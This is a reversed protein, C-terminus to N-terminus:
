RPGSAPVLAHVRLSAARWAARLFGAATYHARLDALAARAVGWDRLRCARALLGIGIEWRYAQPYDSRGAFYRRADTDFELASQLFRMKSVAGSRLASNPSERYVSTVADVYGVRWRSTVYAAAVTDGFRYRRAGFPSAFFAEVAERRYMLTCARLIRPFYFHGFLDGQLLARPFGAHESRRAVAWRGDVRRARVWDAHVAAISLDSEGVAVQRALKAPDCWYDDGDCYAIWRGRARERIRALNNDGGVNAEARVVRIVDPHRAQYELAIGLTGDSSCDEGILLEFPFGCRQALVGDIAEALYDAHNYAVMLVSVVPAAPLKAHDAAELTRPFNM